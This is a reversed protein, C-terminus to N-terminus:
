WIAKIALQIQRSPTQTSTILGASSLGQGAADFLTKNDLPPAFNAHNFVNFFEARLQLNFSDSIRKIYTNKILSLDFSLLGPGILTNRGLNGRRTSPIPFAFCQTKIYSSPNGPNVLSGCGAIPLLDPVDITPDTSQLGLADGGIVPTFPAGTSAALVGGVQWGALAHAGIGSAWKPTGLEWHSNIELNHAINFDALGRNLRPNFFLPSSISNSYEDGVLSASSTDITKGWTYSGEFSARGIKGQVKAELADFYADSRWFGATIRGANLNLRQGKGGAPWVYGQATLTPLVIDADEVRFPQHVGRSGVYAATLTVAKTLERQVRLNWQMVYSRPPNPEFYAQRLSSASTALQSFALSPFSGAPLSTASGSQAFPASNVENFQILYPLPLVDFIGFGASIVYKGDSFPDWSIGIRPEVNGLTPNSFLPSGLHPTADTLNRLVTLKNQVETPVSAIEYRLGLDVTLNRRWAAHDQFYVAGITQRLGRGSQTGPISASLSFPKNQLFDSLSNFAFGGGPDSNALINDRMREIGVGLKLIHKGRTLSVDDYSQISTWHFQYNSPTGIGGSFATLGAVKVGPANEGPVTSFSTDAALPNQGRFNLGTAAVVRNIGFRFSNVMSGATHVENFSFLQRHSDYGTGKNDFEDPERVTAGDHLYTGTLVDEESLKHDVKMNFYNDPIIQQGAFNFIGTDGSPQIAGNPLPYFATLFRSVNPDPTVRGTSLDGSRAAMSPVVSVQSIGLSQRLGEYAAFIFTRQKWLPGGFTGGFQHRTFPPKRLDFYNRADLASDRFFEFVSGHFDRTGSRTFSSVIGGSSRGYQTPYNSSLVSVEEVADVGLNVGAASGAPSNAYDNVSIGNERSDNQRPRSGSITIETGFGRQAAGGSVQTRTTAVGPELTAVDTASRGNLPIDRVNNPSPGSASSANTNGAPASNITQLVFNAINHSGSRLVVARPKATAGPISATAVYRGPLFGSGSFSGDVASILVRAVGTQGSTVSIRANKVLAGSSDTVKGSFVALGTQAQLHLPACLCVIFLSVILCLSRGWTKPIWSVQTLRLSQGRFLRPLGM